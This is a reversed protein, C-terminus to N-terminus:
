SAKQRLLEAKRARLGELTATLKEELVDIDVITQTPSIPAPEQEAEAIELIDLLDFKLNAYSVEVPDGGGKYPLAFVFGPLSAAGGGGCCGGTEPPPIPPVKAHFVMAYEGAANKLAMASQLSISLEKIKFMPDELRRSNKRRPVFSLPQRATM